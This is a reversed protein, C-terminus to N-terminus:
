IVFLSCATKPYLSLIECQIWIMGINDCIMLGQKDMGPPIIINFHIKGFYSQLTHIPNLPELYPSTTSNQLVRYHVKLNWLLCPIEQSAPRVILKELHVRNWPTLSVLNWVFYLWRCHLPLWGSCCHACKLTCCVRVCLTHRTETKSSTRLVVLRINLTVNLEAVCSRVKYTRSNFLKYLRKSSIKIVLNVHVCQVSEVSWSWRYFRRQAPSLLEAPWLWLWM